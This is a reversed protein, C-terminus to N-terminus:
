LDVQVQKLIIVFSWFERPEGAGTLIVPIGENPPYEVENPHSLGNINYGPSHKKQM